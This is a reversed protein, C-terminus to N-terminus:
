LVDGGQSFLPAVLDWLRQTIEEMPLAKGDQSCTIRNWHWYEAAYEASIRCQELYARDREHIDRRSADGQYRADLLQESVKRDMQLYCVLDPKPLALKEYEFDELWDLFEKWEGQPLKGMQHIANSTTYRAAVIFHGQRYWEGWHRVYGAYRDVAYFTSAAYANVGEPHASFDGGLYMKVLASSPSDYDPYSILHVRGPFVEELRQTLREAQTSKGCGDLGDLVLLKGKM